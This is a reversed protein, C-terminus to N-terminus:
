TSEKKHSIFLMIWSWEPMFEVLNGSQFEDPGYLILETNWVNLLEKCPSPDREEREEKQSPLLCLVYKSSRSFPHLGLACATYLIYRPM